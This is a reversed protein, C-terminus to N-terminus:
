SFETFTIMQRCFLSRGFGHLFSSTAHPFHVLTEGAEAIRGRPMGYNLKQGNETSM